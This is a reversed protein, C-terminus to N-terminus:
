ISNGSIVNASKYCSEGGSKRGKMNQKHNKETNKIKLLQKPPGEQSCQLETFIQFIFLMAKPPLTLKKKQHLNGEM